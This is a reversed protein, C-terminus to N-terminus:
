GLESVRRYSEGIGKTSLALDALPDNYHMDAGAQLVILDPGFAQLARPVVAEFCELYSDDETFPELPM